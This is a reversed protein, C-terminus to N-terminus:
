ESTRVGLIRATTIAQGAHRTAHEAVHFLLGLTTSPLGARGVKREELLTSAPTHKVQELARDIQAHVAALLTVRDVQETTEVKAAALQEATLREGRAYTMLRDTSGGIHRVHFGISAAGSPREWLQADSVRGVVADLEAKVQLLSHVIPMLLPEYGPVPGTLWIETMLPVDYQLDGTVYEKGGDARVAHSYRISRVTSAAASRATNTPGTRASTTSELELPKEMLIAVATSAGGSITNLASVWDTPEQHDDCCVYEPLAALRPM